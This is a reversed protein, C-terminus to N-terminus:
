HSSTVVRELLVEITTGLREMLTFGARRQFTNALYSLAWQLDCVLAPLQASRDDSLCEFMHAILQMVETEIGEIIETDHNYDATSCTDPKPKSESHAVPEDYLDSNNSQKATQEVVSLNPVSEIPEPDTSDPTAACQPVKPDDYSDEDDLFNNRRTLLPQAFGRRNSFDMEGDSSAPSPPMEDEDSPAELIADPRTNATLRRHRRVFKRPVHSYSSLDRVSRLRVPRATSSALFQEGPDFEFGEFDSGEQSPVESGDADGDSTLEGIELVGDALEFDDDFDNGDRHVGLMIDESDSDIVLQNFATYAVSKETNADRYYLETPLTMSLEDDDDGDISKDLVDNAADSQTCVIDSVRDLPNQTRRMADPDTCMLSDNDLIPDLRPTQSVNCLGSLHGPTALYSCQSDAADPLSGESVGDKNSKGTLVALHDVYKLKSGASNLSADLCFPEEIDAEGTLLALTPYDVYRPNFGVGDHSNHQLYEGEDINPVGTLLALTAFDVYKHPVIDSELCCEGQLPAEEISSPRTLLALTPYDVYKLCITEHSIGLGSPAELLSPVDNSLHMPSSEFISLEGQELRLASSPSVPYSSDMPSSDFSPFEEQGLTPANPTGAGNGSSSENGALEDILAFLSQATPCKASLGLDTDNDALLINGRLQVKDGVQNALCIHDAHYRDDLNNATARQLAEVDNSYTVFVPRFEINSLHDVGPLFNRGRVDHIIRNDGDGEDLGKASDTRTHKRPETTGQKGADEVATSVLTTHILSRGERKPVTEQTEIDKCPDSDLMQSVCDLVPDTALTASILLDSNDFLEPTPSSEVIQKPVIYLTPVEETNCPTFLSAEAHDEETPIERDFLITTRQAPYPYCSQSDDFHRMTTADVEYAAFKRSGPTYHSSAALVQQELVDDETSCEGDVFFEEDYMALLEVDSKEASSYTGEKKVWVPKIPSHTFTTPTTLMSGRLAHPGTTYM